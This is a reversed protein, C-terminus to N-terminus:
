APVRMVVVPTTTPRSTGGAPGVTIGLRDGPLVGSALVPAASGSSTVPMLGASRAGSPSMVWLQHVKPGAPSPMGAATIVAQHQRTSLVATVTGGTSAPVAQVAVLFVVAAALAAIAATIGAQTPRIRRLRARRGALTLLNRGPPPLQRTRPAAAM